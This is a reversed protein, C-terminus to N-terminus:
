LLEGHQVARVGDDVALLGFGIPGEEAVHQLKRVDVDSFAPQNEPQRRRLHRHMRPLVVLVLEEQHAGVDLLKGPLHLLAPNGAALDQVAPPSEEALDREGAASLEADVLRPVRPRLGRRPLFGGSSASIVSGNGVVELM